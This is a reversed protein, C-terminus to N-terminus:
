HNVSDSASSAEEPQSPAALIKVVRELQTSRSGKILVSADSPLEREVAAVFEDWNSYSEGGFARAAPAAGTGYAILGNIGLSKAFAGIEQHLSRSEDGLEGMEGMVFWRPAPQQALTELAAKCAGPNANYTDDLLTRGHRGACFRMRGKVFGVQQLGTVIHEDAIGLATTAAAAALANRINYEGLLQLKVHGAVKGHITLDFAYRAQTDHTINSASVVAQEDLGFDIIDSEHCHLRAIRHWVPYFADDRNLVVRGDAALGLMIESKAQAINTLGGFEGVHAGTVNTIVAVEPKVQPSTWALEGVHSAGLEVVGYQHTDRLRCLTQPVGVYSNLNGLTALVQDDNGSAAVLISKILEKVTTKGSNGTVAILETTVSRRAFGGLLGLALRTDNVIMQHGKAAPVEGSMDHDVVVAAAGADLARAVFVHGDMAEGRMAFFIDGAALLRSDTVPRTFPLDEGRYDAGMAEAAQRLTDLM